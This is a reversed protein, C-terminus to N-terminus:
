IYVPQNQYQYYECSVRSQVHEVVEEPERREPTRERGRPESFSFVIVYTHLPLPAPDEGDGPGGGMHTLKHHTNNYLEYRM